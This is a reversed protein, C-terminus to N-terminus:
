IEERFAEPYSVLRLGERCIENYVVDDQLLRYEWVRKQWQSNVYRVEPADVCPHMYLENVGEKCSRILNLYLERFGEYTDGPQVDDEDSLLHDILLVGTKAALAAATESGPARAPLRFGIGHRACLTFVPQLHEPGLIGYVTAMHNDIHDPTVGRDCMWDYQAEIERAMDAGTAHLLSERATPYFYGRSDTLSSVGGAVPGWPLRPYEATTTIHLGVHLRPNERARALADEAWACCPMLTTSTLFGCNFSQEVAENAAWFSGFDDANLILRREM